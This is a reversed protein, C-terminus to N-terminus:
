QLRNAPVFVTVRKEVPNYTGAKIRCDGFEIKYTKYDMEVERVANKRVYCEECLEDQHAHMSDPNTVENDLFWVTEYHGCKRLIKIFPM